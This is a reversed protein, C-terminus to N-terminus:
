HAGRDRRFASCISFAAVSNRPARCPGPPLAGRGPPHSHPHSLPRPHPDRLALHVVPADVAGRLGDLHERPRESDRRPASAALPTIAESTSAVRAVKSSLSWSAAREAPRRTKGWDKMLGGPGFRGIVASTEFAGRAAKLHSRPLFGLGFRPAAEAGRLFGLGFRPAAAAGRLGDLHERPRSSDRRPASSALPPRIATRQAGRRVEGRSWGEGEWPPPFRRGCM